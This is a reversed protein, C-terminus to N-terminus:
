PYALDVIPSPSVEMRGTEASLSPAGAISEGRKGWGGEERVKAQMVKRKWEPVGAWRREEEERQAREQAEVDEM